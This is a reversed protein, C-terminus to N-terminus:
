AAEYIILGQITKTGSATWGGLYMNSYVTMLNADSSPDIVMRGTGNNNIPTGSDQAFGTTANYGIGTRASVPLSITLSASNSTGSINVNLYITKGIQEYRCVKTTTSSWGVLTPTYSQWVWSTGAGSILKEPTIAGSAIGTGDNFSADNAWLKNWKATTPQEGATFTDASYGM